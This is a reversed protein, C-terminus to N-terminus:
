RCHRGGGYGGGHHGRGMGAGRGAGSGDRLGVGAGAGIGTGCYGNVICENGLLCDAHGTATTCDAQRQEYIDYLEDAREQTLTGATVRRDLTDKKIELMAEKFEDLKGAEDAIMGYTKGNARESAVAKETMGTIGAVAEAPTDYTAAFVSSSAALMMVATGIALIKKLKNM